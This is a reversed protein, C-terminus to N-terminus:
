EWNMRISTIKRMMKNSCQHDSLAKLYKKNLFMYRQHFFLIYIVLEQKMMHPIHDCACTEAFMYYEKSM